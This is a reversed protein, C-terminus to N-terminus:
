GVAPLHHRHHGGGRFVVRNRARAKHVPVAENWVKRGGDGCDIVEIFDANDLRHSEVAGDRAAEASAARFLSQGTVTSFAIFRFSATSRNPHNTM